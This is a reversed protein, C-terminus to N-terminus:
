KRKYKCVILKIVKKGLIALETIAVVGLAVFTPIFVQWLATIEGTLKLMFLVATCLLTTVSVASYIIERINRM